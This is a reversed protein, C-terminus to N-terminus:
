NEEESNHPKLGILSKREENNVLDVSHTAIIVQCNNYHSLLNDIINMFNSQWEIHTSKEPEDIIIISNDKINFYVNVLLCLLQQEGSSLLCVNELKKIINNESDLVNIYFDGKISNFILEKSCDKFFLNTSKIFDDVVKTLNGNKSTEYMQIQNKIDQLEEEYIKKDVESDENSLLKIVDKLRDKLKFIEFKLSTEELYKKGIVELDREVKLIPQISYMVKNLAETNNKNEIEEKIAELMKKKFNYPESGFNIVEYNEFFNEYKNNEILNIYLNNIDKLYGEYMKIDTKMKELDKRIKIQQIKAKLMKLENFLTEHTYEKCDIMLEKEVKFINFRLTTFRKLDQTSEIDDNESKEVAIHIMEFDLEKFFLLDGKLFSDIIRLISTKGSGNIGILFNKDKNFEITKDLYGYLGIIIIKKIYM